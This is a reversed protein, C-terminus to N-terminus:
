SPSRASWSPSGTPCRAAPRGRGPGSPPALGHGAGRAQARRGEGSPRPQRGGDLEAARRPDRGLQRRDQRRPRDHDPRSAERRLRDHRQGRRDPPAQRHRLRYRRADRGPLADRPRRDRGDRRCSAPVTISSSSRDSGLRPISRSGRRRVHERLRDGASALPVSAAHLAHCVRHSLLAHVGPYTLVIEVTGIGRAAPDRDRAAAVDERIERAVRGIARLGRM